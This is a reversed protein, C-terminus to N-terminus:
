DRGDSLGSLYYGQKWRKQVTKGFNKYEDASVYAQDTYGRGKAFVGVWRHYGYKLYDHYEGKVM